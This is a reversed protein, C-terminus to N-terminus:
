MKNLSIAFVSFDRHRFLERTEKKLFNGLIERQRPTMTEELLSRRVFLHTFGNKALRQSLETGDHSADIFHKFTVDELFTDSYYPRDLYYTYAGTWVCLVRSSLPVHQNIFEMAAYGPVIRKLFSGEEEWGLVPKHYGVAAMQRGLFWYNWALSAVVTLGIALKMVRQSRAWRYIREVMPAAYFCFLFQSPLWFRAQQNGFIFIAASAFLVFGLGAPVRQNVRGLVARTASAVVLLLFILLFPGMAGDFFISDFRGLFSFRWVLLLYDWAERGMGFGLFYSPMARERVDDWGKGGFFSWALPYVPNGLGLWNWVMWCLGPAAGLAFVGIAKLIERPPGKRQSWMLLIGVLGLYIMGTYKLAPMWGALFGIFASERLTLKKFGPRELSAKLFLVLALLSSGLAMLLAPEVYGCGTFYIAPPVTAYGLTCIVAASPGAILRTLSFLAGVTAVHQLIALAQAAHDGATGLLLTMLVEHGKPFASYLNGEIHILRGARLYEKPCLLHYVLSDRVYPPAAAQLIAPLLFLGVLTLLFINVSRLTARGWFETAIWWVALGMGSLFVGWLVSPILLGAFGLSTLLYSFTINGVAFALTHRVMAPLASNKDFFGKCLFDGLAWCATGFAVVCIFQWLLNM